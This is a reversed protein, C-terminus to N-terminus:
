LFDLQHGQMLGPQAPDILLDFLYLFFEHPEPFFSCDVVVQHAGSFLVLLGQLSHALYFTSSSQLRLRDFLFLSLHILHGLRDFLRQVPQVDNITGEALELSGHVALHGEVVEIVLHLGLRLGLFHLSQLLVHLLHLFLDAHEWGYQSVLRLILKSMLQQLFVQLIQIIKEYRHLTLHSPRTIWQEGRLRNRARTAGFSNGIHSAVTSFMDAPIAKREFIWAFSHQFASHAEGLHEM